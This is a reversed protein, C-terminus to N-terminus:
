SSFLGVSIDGFNALLDALAGDGICENTTAPDLVFAFDFRIQGNERNLPFRRMELRKPWIM